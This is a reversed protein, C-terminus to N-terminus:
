ATEEDDRIRFAERLSAILEIAADRTMRFLPKENTCVRCSNGDSTGEDNDLVFDDFILKRGTKSDTITIDEVPANLTLQVTTTRM